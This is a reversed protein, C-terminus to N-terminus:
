REKFFHRLKQIFSSPTQQYSPEKRNTLYNDVIKELARSIPARGNLLLYPTQRMVAKRVFNDEPLQGLAKIDTQLFEKVVQKFRSLSTRGTRESICRNMVIYIPMNPTKNLIHKVMGYSDTISTPEPTTLVICEDSASIFFISELSVGAGMDFIIYDYQTQLEEFQQYFYDKQHKTMTFLNTVGSGGAIYSIGAESTEILDYISLRKEFMDIMTHDAKLGLLIDINGMGVDLDFILVDKGRNRLSISFNLAFNSKGVGGKGSVIAITKAEAEFPKHLARRLNAAQDTM